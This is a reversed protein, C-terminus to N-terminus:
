EDGPAGGIAAWGARVPLPLFRAHGAPDARIATASVPVVWRAIDVPEFVAGLEGALRHGYVESAFVVDVPEPHFRRVIGRWIPWFDPHDAPAQPVEEDLHLVRAAPVMERMWALRLAGAIPDGPLSCVLVTLADCRRIAVDCLYQHGLHPPMFKGLLFGRRM